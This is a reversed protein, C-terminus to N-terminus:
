QKAFRLTKRQGNKEVTIFYIGHSLNSTDLVLADTNNVVKTYLTQGISNVLTFSDPLALSDPWAITLSSTSPNPYVFVESLMDHSITSLSAKNFSRSQSNEFSAGNFVIQNNEDRLQYSGSGYQCCIGDGYSDNITFTYCGDAALTWTQVIPPPLAFTADAYNGGSYLVVNDANRLQWTTESGFADLQLTFTYQTSDYSTNGGTFTGTVTNNSVRQDATGNASVVSATLAGSPLNGAPMSVLAFEHQALNGTWNYTLPTSGAVSYQITASTLPSTGRNTLRVFVPTGECDAGGTDCSPEIKLEADNPFLTIAQEKTSTKLSARRIANNMVVTMRQKQNQTFINMCSDNTYDMYNQPMELTPPVCSVNNVPCGYNADQHVPTDACFDNGCNGNGFIHILGLWHGIEHTMTRGRNFPANLMFTGDNYAISGFTAFNSVVGDSNAPGM